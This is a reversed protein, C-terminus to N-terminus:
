SPACESPRSRRLPRLAVGADHRALAALGRVRRPNILMLGIRQRRETAWLQKYPDDGRGFDIAEVGDAILEEIMRATLLTGPSLADHASDHALKM